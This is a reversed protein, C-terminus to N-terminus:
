RLTSRAMSVSIKVLRRKLNAIEVQHSIFSQAAAEYLDLALRAALRDQLLPAALRLPPNAGLSPQRTAAM